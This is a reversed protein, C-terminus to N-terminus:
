AVKEGESQDCSDTVQTINCVPRIDTVGGYWREFRNMSVRFFASEDVWHLM